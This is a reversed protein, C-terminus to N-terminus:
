AVGARATEHSVSNLVKDDKAYRIGPAVMYVPAYGFFSHETIDYLVISCYKVRAAEIEVDRHVQDPSSEADIKGLVDKRLTQIRKNLMNIAMKRSSVGHFHRMIVVQAGMIFALSFVDLGQPMEPDIMLQMLTTGPLLIAGFFLIITVVILGALLASVSAIAMKGSLRAKTFKINFQRFIKTMGQAHPAFFLLLVYFLLILVIQIIIANTVAVDIVHSMIGYNTAFVLGVGFIVSFSLALPVMGGLFVTLGMEVALGKKKFILHRAIEKMETWQKELDVRERVSTKKTTSTPILIFVFNYSYLLLAVVLWLLLYNPNLFLVM